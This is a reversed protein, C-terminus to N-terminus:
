KVTLFYITAMIIHYSKIKRYLKVWKLGIICMYFGSCTLKSAEAHNYSIEKGHKTTAESQM